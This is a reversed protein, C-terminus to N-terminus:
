LGAPVIFNNIVIAYILIGGITILIQSIDSTEFARVAADAGTRNKERM